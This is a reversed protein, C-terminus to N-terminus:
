AMTNFRNKADDCSVIYDEGCEVEDHMFAEQIQTLQTGIKCEPVKLM